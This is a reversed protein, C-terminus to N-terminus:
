MIEHRCDELLLSAREVEAENTLALTGLTMHLKLPNQFISEDVGRDQFLEVLACM